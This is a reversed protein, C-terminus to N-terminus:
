GRINERGAPGRAGIRGSLLCAGIMWALQFLSMKCRLQRAVVKKKRKGLFM